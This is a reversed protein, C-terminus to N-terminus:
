EIGAKKAIRSNIAKYIFYIIVIILILGGAAYTSSTITNTLYIYTKGSYFGLLAFFISRPVTVLLSMEVFKKLPAKSAGIAILGPVPIVPSLKVILM